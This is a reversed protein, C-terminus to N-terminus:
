TGPLQLAVLWQEEMEIPSLTARAGDTIGWVTATAQKGDGSVSGEIILANESDTGIIFAFAKKGNQEDLSERGTRIMTVVYEFREELEDVLERMQPPTQENM